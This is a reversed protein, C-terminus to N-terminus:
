CDTCPVVPLGRKIWGPKDDYGFMGESVDFVQTFGNAALFRQAQYSRGGTACILGIKRSKDGGVAKLMAQYYAKAGGQQHITLPSSQQPIGTERWEEPSRIDFLQIEGAEIQRWAEDAALVAPEAHSVTLTAFNLVLASIAFSFLRAPSHRTRM